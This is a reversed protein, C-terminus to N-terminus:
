RVFHHPTLIEPIDNSKIWKKLEKKYGNSNRSLKIENPLVNFLSTALYVPSHYTISRNIQNVTLNNNARARTFHNHQVIPPLQIKSISFSNTLYILSLAHTKEMTPVDFESYM